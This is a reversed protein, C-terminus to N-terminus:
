GVVCLAKPVSEFDIVSLEGLSDGDVQVRLPRECTVRLRSINARRFLTKGHPKARDSLMQAVHRLMSHPLMSGLAFVGIGTEFSTEPNTHVPIRGLYTWPDANSIMAAHLATVPPEDDAQVTLLPKHRLGSLYCRTAAGTYLWPTVRRGRGRLREVEAVVDADIGVGANFTFWRDDARGLGIWRGRQEDLARLLGHAAEMPDRSIGLAGAFVNALGGPIVALCPRGAATAPETRLMGNVVENVTGDGGHVVVLDTGDLTARAAADAAHGRYRTEVLDLKVESALAHALVDRGAASTSTAEPNVVLVARM